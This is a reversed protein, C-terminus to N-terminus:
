VELVDYIISIPSVEYFMNKVFNPTLYKVNM